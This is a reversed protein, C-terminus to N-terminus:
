TTRSPWPAIGHDKKANLNWAGALASGDKPLRKVQRNRRHRSEQTQPTAGRDEVPSIMVETRLEPGSMLWIQERAVVGLLMFALAHFMHDNEDLKIWKAQSEPVEERLMNRLQVILKEMGFQQAGYVKWQKKKFKFAVRDLANTRNARVHGRIDDDFVSVETNDDNAEVIQLRAGTTYEVPIIINDTYDRLANATPTYPYRDVAGSRVDYKDMLEDVHIWLEPESFSRMEYVADENGVALHCVQGIDIGISVPVSVEGPLTDICSLVNERSIRQSESEFTEGLVTNHWRRIEDKAQFNWMSKFIYPVDLKSTATPRVHYGRKFDSRTHFNAVWERKESDLDLRSGCASCKFYSERFKLVDVASSPIDYLEDFELKELGPLHLHETDFAVDNWEGCSDCPALYMRQDSSFFDADIAFKAYTPTSFRQTIKLNSNQLRSQFLALMRQDSLDTEDHFLADAPTSTADAETLGTVFGFSNNLQITTRSRVDKTDSVHFVQDAVLIPAVRTQAVRRQLREDPLTFFANVGRNRKLFALFKRIQIETLGVQSCKKVNVDGFMDDCIARQFHYNRFSFARSNLTTNQAIWDSVSMSVRDVSYRDSLVQSLDAILPNEM